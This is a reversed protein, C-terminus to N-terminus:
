FCCREQNKRKGFGLDVADTFGILKVQSVIEFM